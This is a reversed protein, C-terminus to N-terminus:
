EEEGVLLSFKKLYKPPNKELRLPAVHRGLVKTLEDVLSLITEETMKLELLLSDFDEKCSIHNYLTQYEKYLLNLRNNVYLRSELVPNLFLAKLENTIERQNEALDTYKILFEEFYKEFILFDTPTINLVQSDHIYKSIFSTKESAMNIFFLAIKAETKKYLIKKNKNEYNDRGGIKDLFKKYNTLLTNKKPYIEKESVSNESYLDLILDILSTLSIKDTDKFIFDFLENLNVKKQVHTYTLEPRIFYKPIIINGFQISIINFFYKPCSDDIFCIDEHSDRLLSNRMVIDYLDNSKFESLSNNRMIIEFLDGKNQNKEEEEMRKKIMYFKFIEEEQRELDELGHIDLLEKGYNNLAELGYKDIDEKSYKTLNKSDSRVFNQESYKKNSM